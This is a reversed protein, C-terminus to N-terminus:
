SVLPKCLDLAKNYRLFPQSYGGQGETLRKAAVPNTHFTDSSPELSVRYPRPFDCERGAVCSFYRLQRRESLCCFLALVWGVKVVVKRPAAKRVRTRTKPVTTRNKTGKNPKQYLPVDALVARQFGGKQSGGFGSGSVFVSHAGM